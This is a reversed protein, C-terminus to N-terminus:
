RQGRSRILQAIDTNSKALAHEVADKGNADRLGTDAGKNLLQRVVETHGHIAALMLPTLGSGATGNIDAGLGLFKNVLALDGIFAAYHLPTWGAKNPEARAGRALLMDVIAEQGAFSALLLADDGYSNRPYVRAGNELLLAATNKSGSRAALMLLSYGTSDAYNVDLGRKIQTKLESANDLQVAKLADDIIEGASAYVSWALAFISIIVKINNLLM